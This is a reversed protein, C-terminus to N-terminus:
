DRWVPIYIIYLLRKCYLINSSKIEGYQFTFKLKKITAFDATDDKLREMSSHLDYQSIIDYIERQAKLREMSSHLHAQNACIEHRWYRKIEGYQFTFKNLQSIAAVTCRM